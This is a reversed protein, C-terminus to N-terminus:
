RILICRLRSNSKCHNHVTKQACRHDGTRFIYGVFVIYYIYIHICLLYQIYLIIGAYVGFLALLDILDFYM